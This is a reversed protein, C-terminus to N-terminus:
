AHGAGTPSALCPADALRARAKSPCAPVASCCATAPPRRARAPELGSLTQPRRPLYPSPRPSVPLHLSPRHPVSYIAANSAVAPAVSLGGGLSWPLLGSPRADLVSHLLEHAASVVHQWRLAIAISRWTLRWRERALPKGFPVGRARKPEDLSRPLRECGQGQKGHNGVDSDQARFVATVTRSGFWSPHGGDGVEVYGLAGRAAFVAMADATSCYLSEKSQAKLVAFITPRAVYVDGANAADFETLRHGLNVIRGAEVDRLVKVLANCRGNTKCAPTCHAGSAWQLTAPATDVLAIAEIGEGFHTSAVKHLLRYDYLQDARVVLFPAETPFAVRACILSNALTRWLTAPVYVYNVMIPVGSAQVAAVIQSANEGLTVVALDFGARALGDLLHLVLPRMDVSHVHRPNIRRDRTSLVSSAHVLARRVQSTESRIPSGPDYTWKRGNFGSSAM